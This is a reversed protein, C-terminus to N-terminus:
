RRRRRAPPLGAAQRRVILGDISSGVGGLNNYTMVPASISTGYYYGGAPPYGYSMGFSAGNGFAAGGVAGPAFGNNFGGFNGMGNHFGGAVFGQARAPSTTAMVMLGAAFWLALSHTRSM